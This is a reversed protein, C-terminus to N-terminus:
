VLKGHRSWRWLILWQPLNIYYTAGLLNEQFEKLHGLQVTCSSSGLGEQWQEPGFRCCNLFAPEGDKSSESNVVNQFNCPLILICLIIFICDANEKEARSKATKVGWWNRSVAQVTAPQVFLEWTVKNVACSGGDWTSAGTRVIKSELVIYTCYTLIEEKRVVCYHMLKNLFELSNLWPFPKHCLILNIIILHMSTILKTTRHVKQNDSALKIEM